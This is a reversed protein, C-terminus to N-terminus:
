PLRDRVALAVTHGYVQWDGSYIVKYHNGKYLMYDALTKDRDSATRVEKNCIFKRVDKDREGEELIQLEKYSPQQVSAMCRFTNSYDPAVQLGDVYSNPNVSRHVTVFEATDPCIAASVNVPM